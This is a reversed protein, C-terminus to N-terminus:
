QQRLTDLYKPHYTYMRDALYIILKKNYFLQGDKYFYGWVDFCYKTPRKKYYCTLAGRVDFSIKTAPKMEKMLLNIKSVEEEQFLRKTKKTDRFTYNFAECSVDAISKTNFGEFEVKVSDLKNIQAYGESWRLFSLQVLLFTCIAIKM